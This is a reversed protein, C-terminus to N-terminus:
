KKDILQKIVKKLEAIEQELNAIKLSQVEDYNITKYGNPNTKVADPLVKEVEQAIYGIHSLSDRQDKWKFTVTNIGDSGGRVSLIDKLRRDSSEYYAGAYVDGNVQLYYAGADTTTNVLVEGGSTIRMREPHSGAGTQTAFALFSAEDSANERAAKIYGLQSGTRVFGIGVGFNASTVSGGDINIITGNAMDTTVNGASGLVDLKGTPSSTGIGVDGGSTIRMRETGISTNTAATLFAIINVGDLETNGQGGIGLLNETAASYYTLLEINPNANTYPVGTILGYKTTNNTRSTNNGIDAGFTLAYGSTQYGGWAIDLKSTPSTTGIGVNGAQTITLVNKPTGSNYTDIAFNNGTTTTKIGWYAGSGIFNYDTLYTSTGINTNNTSVSSSYSNESRVNGNVQLKYDGADSTTNILLEGSSTTRMIENGGANYSWIHSGNGKTRYQSNINTSVGRGELFVNGTSGLNGIDFYDGSTYNGFFNDNGDGIIAVDGANVVQLKTAPNNTGIGVRGGSTIRMREQIATASSNDNTFFVLSGGWNDGTRPSSIRGTLWTSYTGQDQGFDLSTGSGTNYGGVTALKLSTTTTGASYASVVNLPTGPSTTGIGVSGGRPNLLLNYTQSLDTRDTSQIWPNASNLGFDLIGTTATSSLRLAGNTQTTGSTAPLGNGSINSELKVAPSTTGIGVNGGSTIRMRETNNTFFAAYGNTVTNYNTYSANSEIATYTTNGANNYFRITSINDSSRGVLAISQASADAVITTRALATTGGVMLNGSADLTMAQTFSIANGATGSPATQWVHQGANQYYMTSFGNQIYKNATGDDYWNTGLVTYTSSLNTLATQPGLQLAKYINSWASPTVGLGLNGSATLTMLETSTSASTLQYWSFKTNAFTSPLYTNWFGVDVTGAQFNQGIALGENTAPRTGNLNGSIYIGPNTLAGVFRGTGSVDLKYAPSSTGIGLNGSADLRMRESGNTWFQLTQFYSDQALRLTNTTWSLAGGGTLGALNYVNANVYGSFTGNGTVSLKETPSNNNIGVNGGGTVLGINQTSVNNILLVQGYANITNWDFTSYYTSPVDQYAIKLGSSAPAYVTLKYDPSSSGIGLNGGSTLRMYETNNTGFVLPQGDFTGLVLPLGTGFALTATGSAFGFRTSGSQGFYLNSTGFENTILTSSASIISNGIASSSTFKPIYNTTGTGSIGNALTDALSVTGNADVRLSKTGTGTPLGSMRVGRKLHTGLNVTLLSDPTITGIGVGTTNVRIMETNDISFKYKGNSRVWFRFENSSPTGQLYSFSSSVDNLWITGLGDSDRGQVTIENKAQINGNVDLRIGSTPTITNIGVASANDFIQSNGITGSGTFKSVYNTTGSGSVGNTLTDAVSLTGNADIRVAKTGVGTPLASMRVGRKFRAGNEVTLMSDTAAGSGIGVNGNNLISVRTASNTILNMESNVFTGIQMASSSSNVVSQITSGNNAYFKFTGVNSANGLIGLAGDSATEAVMLRTQPSTTSVGIRGDTQYIQSTDISSVGTAKTLYGSILSGSVGNSLTDAVSLTGNADVRLGKTGTGTPLGSMRVGRQFLAGNVVTLNSDPTSTGLGMNGNGLLYYPTSLTGNNWLRLEARNTYTAAAPDTTRLALQTVKKNGADDPTGFHIGTAMGSQATGSSLSSEILIPYQGGTNNTTKENLIAVYSSLGNNEAYLAANNNADTSASNYNIKLAFGGTDVVALRGGPTITGLGINEGSQYFQSTDITKTGTWKSLYNSIGSGDVKTNALAAVSDVGKQRWARTSILLTDIALTGSTTITGGTIGTGNNTAVSTVTGGADASRIAAATDALIKRTVYGLPNTTTLSDKRRLYYASLTASDASVVQGAKSLGYGVNNVYNTLMSATDSINLKQNIRNSLSATDVKRLYPNLMSATDSINLKLNINAQLSDVGKQRWARTSIVTTDIALTGSTTITGGTIGTGNNTAVSTVTGGLDSSRIAAATDALIKQTVYGLPNTVTLSDKRRLYYASLTASDASAVQGAKSLGYGVNNLYNGLMTATDSINVKLNIRNSLSATDIARLYPALMAATDSLNLKGALGGSVSAKTAIVNTTDIEISQRVCSV